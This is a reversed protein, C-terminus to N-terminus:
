EGSAAEDNTSISALAAKIGEISIDLHSSHYSCTGNSVLLVQPSEHQVDYQRAVENSIPRFQHLDLYYFPLTDEPIDWGRKLRNHALGSIGCTTSHKFILVPTNASAENIAELQIPDTLHNWNAPQSM